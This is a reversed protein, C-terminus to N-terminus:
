IRGRKARRHAVGAKRSRRAISISALLKRFWTEPPGIIRLFSNLLFTRWYTQRVALCAFAYANEENPIAGEALGQCFACGEVHDWRDKPLENLTEVEHPQLCETRCDLSAQSALKSLLQKSTIGQSAATASLLEDALAESYDEAESIQETYSSM